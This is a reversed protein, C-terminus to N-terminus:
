PFKGSNESHCIQHLLCCVGAPLLPNVRGVVPFASSSVSGGPSDASASDADLSRGRCISKWLIVASVEQMDQSMLNVEEVLPAVLTRIAESEM